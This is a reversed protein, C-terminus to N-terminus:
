AGMCLSSSASMMVPLGVIRGDRNAGEARRSNAPLAVRVSKFASLFLEDGTITPEPEDFWDKSVPPRNRKKLEWLRKTITRPTAGSRECMEKRSLGAADWAILDADSVLQKHGGRTLAPLGMDRRILCIASKSVGLREGIEVDNMGQAHLEAILARRAEDKKM